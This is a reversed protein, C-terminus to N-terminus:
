SAQVMWILFNKRFSTDMYPFKGEYRVDYRLTTAAWAAGSGGDFIPSRVIARPSQPRLSPSCFHSSPRSFAAVPEPGPNSPLRVSQAATPEAAATKKKVVFSDLFTVSAKSPELDVVKKKKSKAKGIRKIATAGPKRGAGPRWGGSCGQTGAM